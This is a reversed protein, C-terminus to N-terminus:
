RVHVGDPQPKGALKNDFYELMATCDQAGHGARAADDFM